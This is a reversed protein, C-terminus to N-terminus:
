TGYCADETEQVISTVHGDVFQTEIAEKEQIQSVSTLIKGELNRTITYGKKLVQEPMIANLHREKDALSAKKNLLINLYRSLQIRNQTGMLNKDRLDLSWYCLDNLKQSRGNLNAKQNNFSEGFSSKLQLSLNDAQYLALECQKRFGNLSGLIKRALEQSAFAMKRDTIDKLRRAAIELRSVLERLRTVLSEAVATPTKFSSHAVVDLLGTDIEHGIGVWVPVPCNVVARAIEEGDFWALDAQSGGGRVICIVDVGVKSLLRISSILDKATEEGQMHCDAFIVQFSFDSSFLTKVFDNYAASEKSTILGLCLPAAPLYASANRKLINERTLKEIIQRRNRTIHSEGFSLDIDYVDLSLGYVDHFRVACLVCVEGNQQLADPVGAESLKRSIRIYNQRWIIIRIRAVQKGAEDVEMLESYYHGSRLAGRDAILQAQVWFENESLELLSDSILSTIDHLHYIRDPLSNSSSEQM